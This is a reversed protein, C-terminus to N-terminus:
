KKHGFVAHIVKVHGNEIILEHWNRIEVSIPCLSFTKTSQYYCM